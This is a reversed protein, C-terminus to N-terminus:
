DDLLSPISITKDTAEEIQDYLKIAERLAQELMKNHREYSFFEEARKHGARGMKESIMPDTALQLVKEAFSREEYPEILFGTEGDVVTVTPGGNNWAVVPVGAAMAEVIGMGFDEEPSPYVYLAAELYLRQLDRETVLGVFYVANNIGLGNVLYRLQDTYETEQGTIVLSLNPKKKWIMKLSWIAFEFRKM